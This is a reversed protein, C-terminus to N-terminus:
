SLPLTQCYFLLCSVSERWCCGFIRRFSNNQKREVIKNLRQSNSEIFSIYIYINWVVNLRHYDNYDLYWTECGYMVTPVCYTKVIHLTALVLWGM